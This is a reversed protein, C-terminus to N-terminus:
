RLPFSSHFIFFSCYSHFFEKMSKCKNKYRYKKWDSPDKRTGFYGFFFGALWRIVIHFSTWRTYDDCTQFSGICFSVCMHDDTIGVIYEIIHNTLWINVRLSSLEVIIVRKVLIVTLFLFNSPHKPLKCKTLYQFIERYFGITMCSDPKHSM